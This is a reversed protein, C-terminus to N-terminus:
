KKLAIYRESHLDSEKVVGGTSIFNGVIRARKGDATRIKESYNVRVVVKGKNDGADFAYVLATDQTDLYIDAIALHDPLNLWVEEPLTHGRGDKVPRLSHLLERDRLFVGASELVHGNDALDQVTAPPLVHAM